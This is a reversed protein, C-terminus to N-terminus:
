SLVAQKASELESHISFGPLVDLRVLDLIRRVNKDTIVLALKGNTRRLQQYAAIIAAVGASDLYTTASLDVVLGSPSSTIAQEIATRVEGVNGYDVEGTVRVIPPETKVLEVEVFTYTGLTGIISVCYDNNVNVWHRSHTPISGM